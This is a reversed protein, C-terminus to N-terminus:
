SFFNTAYKKEGYSSVLIILSPIKRDTAVCSGHCDAPSTKIRQARQIFVKELNLLTELTNDLYM